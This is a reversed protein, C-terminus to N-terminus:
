RAPYACIAHMPRIGWPRCNGSLSTTARTRSSEVGTVALYTIVGLVILAAAVIRLMQNNRKM